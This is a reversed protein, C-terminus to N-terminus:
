VAVPSAVMSQAVHRGPTVAVAPRTMVCAPKRPLTVAHSTARDGMVQLCDSSTPNCLMRGLPEENVSSALELGATNGDM